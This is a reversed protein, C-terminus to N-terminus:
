RVEENWWNLDPMQPLFNHLYMQGTGRDLTWAPGGFTSVWNNPPTGGPGPDRWVYWERRPANRASRSEQFWPHRDSTHNPVLDLIIRIGRRGAEGIMRELDSMTGLDPHVATYDSVDYGWDENPSPTVPTLWIGAVGLWQLYDLQKVIGALDGVGDGNSDMFS